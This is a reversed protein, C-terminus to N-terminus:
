PAGAVNAAPATNVASESSASNHMDCVCPRAAYGSMVHKHQQIPVPVQLSVNAIDVDFCIQVPLMWKAPM